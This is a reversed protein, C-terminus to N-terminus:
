AKILLCKKGWLILIPEPSGELKALTGTPGCFVAPSGNIIRKLSYKTLNLLM